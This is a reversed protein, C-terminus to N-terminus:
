ANAPVEVLPRIADGVRIWGSRIVQALVGQRGQSMITQLGPAVRDMKWCPTRPEYFLLVAEGIEMERGLFSVLDLGITEINSRVAGPIIEPLGLAAAHRAIEERAILSVQRRRPEGNQNTRGYVRADGVLGKGAEAYVESVPRLPDGAVEPHLHLSAVTGLEAVM